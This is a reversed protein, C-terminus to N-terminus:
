PVERNELLDIKNGILIKKCNEPTCNSVENWWHELQEFSGKNSIDYVFLVGDAGKYYTQCQSKLREQGATDWFDIGIKYEKIIKLSKSFSVGLTPQSNKDFVSTTYRHLLCTKGVGSSGSVVIKIKFDNQDLSTIEIKKDSM